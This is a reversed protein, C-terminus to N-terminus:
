SVVAFEVVGIVPLVDPVNVKEPRVVPSVNVAVIVDIPSPALKAVDITPGADAGRENARNGRRAGCTETDVLVLVDTVTDNGDTGL